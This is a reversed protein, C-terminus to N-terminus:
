GRAGVERRRNESGSEDTLADTIAPDLDEASCPLMFAEGDFVEELFRTISAEFPVHLRFRELCAKGCDDAFGSMPPHSEHAGFPSASAMATQDFM